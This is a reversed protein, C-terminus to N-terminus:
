GLSVPESANASVSTPKENGARDRGCANCVMGPIVREHYFADMYGACDRQKHGCHECVMVATYDNRRQWLIQEIKM